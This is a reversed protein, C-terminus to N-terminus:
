LYIPNRSRRYIYYFILFIIIILPLYSLVFKANMGCLTNSDDSRVFSQIPLEDDVQPYYQREQQIQQQQIQQQMQQQQMQQQQMQQQQEQQQQPIQQPIQYPEQQQQQMQELERQQQQMQQQQEIQQRYQRQRLEKQQEQQILKYNNYYNAEEKPDRLAEPDLMKTEFPFEKPVQPFPSYTRDNMADYSIACPVNLLSGIEPTGCYNKDPTNCTYQRHSRM